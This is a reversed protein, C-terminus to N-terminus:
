SIPQKPAEGSLKLLAMDSTKNERDYWNKTAKSIQFAKSEKSIYSGFEYTFPGQIALNALYLVLIHLVSLLTQRAARCAESM